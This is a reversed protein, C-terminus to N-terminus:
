RLKYLFAVDERSIEFNNTIFDHVGSKDGRYTVKRLCLIKLQEDEKYWIHIHEKSLVGLPAKQCTPTFFSKWWKM